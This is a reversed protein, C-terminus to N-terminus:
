KFDCELMINTLFAVLNIESDAVFAHQYLYTSTLVVATPVSTPKLVDTISDYFQRYFATDSDYNEVVWERMLKFDKNKLSKILEYYNKEGSLSLIGEDIIGSASYSQLENIVRRFDPFHNMILRAVVNKDYDVGEKDLIEMARKMYGSAVKPRDDKKIHFDIVTLRSHLEKMIKNPYNCTLIFGCNKSFEEVFGRLAPQFSNPNLHDAEDLIIYKRGGSFSVSSAFNSIENRLTDINGSLSGNITIFDRGVENLMAKAFTTKGIGPSGTLLLNPIEGREVFSNFTARLEDTLVCNASTQPRYKETWLFNDM